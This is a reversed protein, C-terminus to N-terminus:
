MLFLFTNNAQRNVVAYFFETKLTRGETNEPTLIKQLLLSFFPFIWGIPAL